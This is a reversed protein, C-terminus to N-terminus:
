PCRPPIRPPEHTTPQAAARVQHRRTPAARVPPSSEACRVRWRTCCRPGRAVDGPRRGVAVRRTTVALTQRRARSQSTARVPCATWRLRARPRPTTFATYHRPCPSWTLKGQPLKMQSSIPCGGDGADPGRLSTAPTAHAAPRSAGPTPDDGPCPDSPGSDDLESVVGRAETPGAIVRRKLRPRRRSVRGRRLRGSAQRRGSGSPLRDIRHLRFERGIRVRRCLSAM